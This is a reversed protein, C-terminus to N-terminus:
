DTATGDIIEIYVTGSGGCIMGEGAVECEWLFPSGKIKLLELAKQIAKLELIGGGVTGLIQTNSYVLMKAGAKRPTSGSTQCLTVLVAESRDRYVDIIAKLIERNM